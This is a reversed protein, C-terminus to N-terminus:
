TASANWLRISWCRTTPRCATCGIATAANKPITTPSRAPCAARSPYAISDESPASISKPITRSLIHDNNIGGVEGTPIHILGTSGDAALKYLQGGGNIVLWQGDNTWNPAEYLTPLDIVKRTAGTDKNVVSIRTIQGEQLDKRGPWRGREINAKAM